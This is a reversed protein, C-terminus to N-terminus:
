VAEAHANHRHLMQPALERGFPMKTFGYHAQLREITMIAGTRQHPHRPRPPRTDLARHRQWTACRVLRTPRSSLNPTPTTPCTPTTSGLPLSTATHPWSWGWTTSEPRLQRRPHKSRDPVPTSMDDSGTPSARAWRGGM